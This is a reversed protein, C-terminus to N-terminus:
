LVGADVRLQLASCLSFVRFFIAPWMMSVSGVTLIVTRNFILPAQYVKDLLLGLTPRLIYLSQRAHM